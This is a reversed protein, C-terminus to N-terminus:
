IWASPLRIASQASECAENRHHKNHKSSFGRNRYISRVNEWIKHGRSLIEYSKEAQATKKVVTLRVRGGIPSAVSGGREFTDCIIHPSLCVLIM